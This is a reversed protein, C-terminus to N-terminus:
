AAKRQSLAREAREIVSAAAIRADPHSDDAAMRHLHPLAARVDLGLMERLVHWRVFFSPHDLFSELVPVADERGLKRVLTTVMQIRSDSDDVASCGVCRGTASDYEVSVLAQGAKIVAQLLLINHRVHEIVYAEARGDVTVIEGDGIKRDAVRSCRGAAAIAFDAAIPPAEWFSLTADGARVFKLVNLQGTFNVSTAGRAGMKRAALPAPRSVGAAIAVKDDEYVLLGTHLDTNLARFPPEFYPNRRMEAALTAILASVWQDDAFLTRVAEAVAGADDAPIPEFIEDFRRHVPGLAWATAVRNAAESTDRQRRRDGAWARLQEDVIM